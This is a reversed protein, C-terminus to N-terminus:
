LILRTELCIFFGFVAYSSRIEVRFAIFPKPVISENNKSCFYPFLEFWLYYGMDPSITKM